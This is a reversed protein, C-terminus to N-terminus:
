LELGRINEETRLRMSTKCYSIAKKTFSIKNNIVILELSKIIWCHPVGDFAKKYDIWVM